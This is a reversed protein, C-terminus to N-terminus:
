LSGGAETRRSETAVILGRRSGGGSVRESRNGERAPKRRSGWTESAQVPSLVAWAGPPQQAPTGRNRSNGSPVTRSEWSGLIGGQAKAGSEAGPGTGRCKAQAVRRRRSVAHRAISGGRVCVPLGLCDASNRSEIVRSQCESWVSRAGRATARRLTRKRAAALRERAPTTVRRTDDVHKM